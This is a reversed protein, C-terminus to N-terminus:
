LARWISMSASILPQLVVSFCLLFVLFFAIVVFLVLHALSDSFAARLGEQTQYGTFNSVGIYRVTGQQVLTNLVSLTDRIPVRPDWLHVQLLDIYDTRLRHLSAKVSELIHKRSLGVDNVGECM